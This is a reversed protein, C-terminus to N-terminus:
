KSQLADSFLKITKSRNSSQQKNSTKRQWHFAYLVSSILNSIQQQILYEYSLLANVCMGEAVFSSTEGLDSDQRQVSQNIESQSGAVQQQKGRRFSSYSTGVLLRKWPIGVSVNDISGRVIKWRVRTGYENYDTENPNLYKDFAEPRLEVNRLQVNGSWIGVSLRSQDTQGDETELQIFPSLAAAAWESLRKSPNYYSAM